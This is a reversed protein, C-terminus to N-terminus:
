GEPRAREVGLYRHGWLRQRRKRLSLDWVVFEGMRRLARTNAERSESQKLAIQTWQIRPVTIEKHTLTTHTKLTPLFRSKYRYQM